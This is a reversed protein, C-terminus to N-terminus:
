PCSSLLTLLVFYADPVPGAPTAPLRVGGTETGPGVEGDGPRLLIKRGLIRFLGHAAACWTDYRVHNSKRGRMVPLPTIVCDTACRTHGTIFDERLVLALVEQQDEQICCEFNNLYLYYVFQDNM